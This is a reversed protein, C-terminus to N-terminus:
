GRDSRRPVIRGAGGSGERRPPSRAASRRSDRNVADPRNRDQMDQAWRGCEPHPSHDDCQSYVLSLLHDSTEHNLLSNPETREPSACRIRGARRPTDEGMWRRPRRSSRIIAHDGPSSCEPRQGHQPTTPEDPSSRCGRKMYPGSRACGGRRYPAPDVHGGDEGNGACGARSGAPDYGM